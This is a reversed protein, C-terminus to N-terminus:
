QLMRQVTLRLRGATIGDSHPVPDDDGMTNLLTLANNLHKRSEGIRDGQQMLMGLTFHAMIFKPDLYLAQRVAKVAEPYRNGEQYIAALQYYHEPNLKECDIATRCWHEAEDLEGLNAYARAMMTMSESLMLFNGAGINDKLVPTLVRITARYDGKEFATLADQIMGFKPSSGRVADTKRRKPGLIAPKPPEEIVQRPVPKRAKSTNEDTQRPPGKRHLIANLFRVPTLGPERVFGSEAPGVILWGNEKLTRNLRSIVANRLHDDFYMLVNRCLIIDMPGSRLLRDYDDAVFNLQSFDVMDRIRPVIEYTSADIPTFYKDIIADPTDRFSWRSYRGARAKELSCSNADTGIIIIEWGRFAKKMQDILIAVSYPEEGTACGASWIRINKGDRRPNQLIGRFIDDGLIQFMSKDRLFFTEGITLHKILTDLAQRSPPTKVLDTIFPPCDRFGMEEGAACVGKLMTRYKKPPFYLGTHAAIFACLEDQLYEPIEPIM